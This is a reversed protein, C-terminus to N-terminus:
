ESSSDPPVAIGIRQPIGSGMVEEFHTVSPPGVLYGDILDHFRANLPSQRFRVVHAEVSEWEVRLQYRGANEVCRELRAGGSGPAAGLLRIGEWFQREFEGARCPDIEFMAVETVV